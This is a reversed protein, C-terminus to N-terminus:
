SDGLVQSQDCGARARARGEGEWWGEQLKGMGGESPAEKGGAVVM